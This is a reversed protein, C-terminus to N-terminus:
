IGLTARLREPLGSPTGLTRCSTQWHALYDRPPIGSRGPWRNLAGLDQLWEGNEEILTLVTPVFGRAADVTGHDALFAEQRKFWTAVGADIGQAHGVTRSTGLITERYQRIAVAYGGDNPFPPAQEWRDALLQLGRLSFAEVLAEEVWQCPNRPKADPQWSNCVVHGLEHGFQYALNCWDRSGVTVAIWATAPQDQHLWIYPPGEAHDDVRLLGPQHDSLLPVGALCAVRM